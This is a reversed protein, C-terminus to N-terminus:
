EVGRPRDVHYGARLPSPLHRQPRMDRLTPTTEPWLGKWLYRLGYGLHYRGSRTTWVTTYPTPPFSTTGHHAADVKLLSSLSWRLSDVRGLPDSALSPLIVFFTAVHRIICCLVLYSLLRAVSPPRANRNRTVSAPPVHSAAQVQM